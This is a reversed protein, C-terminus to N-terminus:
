CVEVFSSFIIIWSSEENKYLVGDQYGFDSRLSWLKKEKTGYYLWVSLITTAKSEVIQMSRRENKGRQEEDIAEDDSM